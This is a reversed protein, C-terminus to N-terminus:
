QIVETPVESFSSGAYVTVATLAAGPGLRVPGYAASPGSVATPCATTSGSGGTFCKASLVDGPGSVTASAQQVSVEWGTGVLDWYMEVDGAAVGPPMAPDQMDQATIVRLGNRVTYDIIYTHAGTITVDPDGIRLHLFPGETSVEVQIPAGDMTVSNATLDYVRREGNRMVDYMPLDRFIGHQYSGAFDYTISEVIRISTDSSVTVDVGLDAITEASATAPAPPPSPASPSTVPSPSTPPAVTATQSESPMSTSVGSGSGSAGPGCASTLILATAVLTTLKVM